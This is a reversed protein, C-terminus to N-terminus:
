VALTSVHFVPNPLQLGPKLDVARAAQAKEGVLGPYLEGHRGVHEQLRKPMRAAFAGESACLYPRETFLQELERDPDLPGYAPEDEM